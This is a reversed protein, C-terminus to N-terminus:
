SAAQTVGKSILAEIEDGSITLERLVKRSHAGVLPPPASKEKPMNEFHVPGGVFQLRGATPHEIEEILGLHKVQPDDLVEALNNLAVAPVDNAELIALWEHR